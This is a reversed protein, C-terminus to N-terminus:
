AILDDVSTFKAHNQLILVFEVTADSDLNFELKLDDGSVVTQKIEHSKFTGGLDFKFDDSSSGIDIRDNSQFDVIIDPATAKSDAAPNFFFRDAGSAGILTDRGAGGDISDNGSGGNISDNGADGSLGDHNTGGNITDNGDLGSLSDRLAGGVLKDHGSTGVASSYSNLLGAIDALVNLADASNLSTGSVLTANTDLDILRISTIDIKPNHHAQVAGLLEIFDAATHPFNGTASLKLDGVTLSLKTETLTAAALTVSGKKISISDLDYNHAKANTALTELLKFGPFTGQAHGSRVYAIGQIAANYAEGFNDPFAGTATVSIGGGTVSVKTDSVTASAITAGAYKVTIKDLDYNFLESNSPIALFKFNAPNPTPHAKDLGLMQDIATYVDGLSTPFDGDVTVAAKGATVSLKSDTLTAQGLVKSGQGFTISKLVADHNGDFTNIASKLNNFKTTLSGSTIPGFKSGTISLYYGSDNVLTIGTSALKTVTYDHSFFSGLKSSITTVEKGFATFKDISSEIQVIKTLYDLTSTAGNRKAVADIKARDFVVSGM